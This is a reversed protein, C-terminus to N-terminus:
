CINWSVSLDVDKWALEDDIDLKMAIRALGHYYVLSQLKHITPHSLHAWCCGDVLVEVEWSHIVSLGRRDFQSMEIVTYCHCVKLNIERIRRILPKMGHSLLVDPSLAIHRLNDFSLYSPRTYLM